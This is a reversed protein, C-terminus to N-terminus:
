LGTGGVFAGFGCCGPILKVGGAKGLLGKEFGLGNVFGGTVGGGGGGGCDCFPRAGVPPPASAVAALEVADVSGPAPPSAAGVITAPVCNVNSGGDSASEAPSSCVM